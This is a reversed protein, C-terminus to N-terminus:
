FDWSVFVVWLVYFFVLLLWANTIFILLLFWCNLWIWMVIKYCILWPNHYLWYALRQINEFLRWLSIQTKFFFNILNMTLLINRLTGWPILLRIRPNLTHRRNAIFFNLYVYNRFLFYAIRKFRLCLNVKQLSWFCKGFIRLSLAFAFLSLLFM